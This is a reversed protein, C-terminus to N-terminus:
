EESLVPVTLIVHEGHCDTCMAQRLILRGNPRTKGNWEDLFAAVKEPAEHEGHCRSCFAAIEARGFLIDPKTRSTEDDMHEYSIGHCHACTIGQALHTTVLEEERLNSHCLLCLSNDNPLAGESGRLSAHEAAAEAIERKVREAREHLEQAVTVCIAILLLAGGVMWVLAAPSRRM